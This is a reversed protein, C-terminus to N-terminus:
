LDTTPRDGAFGPKVRYSSERVVLKPPEVPRSEGDSSSDELAGHASPLADLGANTDTLGCRAQLEYKWLAASQIMLELEDGDYLGLVILSSSWRVEKIEDISIVRKYFLGKLIIRDPLLKAKGFFVKRDELDFRSSLIVVNEIKQSRAV